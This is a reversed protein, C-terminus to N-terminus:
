LVLFSVAAFVALLGIAVAAIVLLSNHPKKAVAMAVGVPAVMVIPEPATRRSSDWLPEAGTAGRPAQRRMMQNVNTDDLWAAPAPPREAPPPPVVSLPQPTHMRKEARQM